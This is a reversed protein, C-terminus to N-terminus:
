IEKRLVYYPAKGTEPNRDPAWEFFLYERGDMTKILYNSGMQDGPHYIKGKSWLWAKSTKMDKYFAIEKLFFERQDLRKGPVFQDITDVFDVTKWRGLVQPDPQFHLIFEQMPDAEVVADATYLMYGVIVFFLIIFVATLLHNIVHLAPPIAEIDMKKAPPQKLLEAYEEAPGMEEFIQQFQRDTRDGEALDEFRQELHDRVDALLEKKRPHHVATLEAEIQRLYEDRMMRWQKEAESM